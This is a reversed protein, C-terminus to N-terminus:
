KLKAASEAVKKIFKKRATDRNPLTVMGLLNTKVVKIGCFGLIYKRVLRIPSNPILRQYFAPGDATLFLQATKGKLHKVIKLGNMNYAFGPTLVRDFWGKLLGPMSAWWVPYFFVIHDAWQILEQSLLIDKDEPMKESYGYRLVPDFTLKGLELTKIQLQNKDLHSVFTNFLESVYSNEYPHGNIVLVKKQM